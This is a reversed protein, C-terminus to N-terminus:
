RRARRGPFGGAKAPGGSGAVELALETRSRVHLKRYVNTLTWEVTKPCLRLEHAVEENTWGRAVLEVVRAEAPTLCALTLSDLM